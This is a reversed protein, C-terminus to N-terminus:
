DGDVCYEEADLGVVVGAANGVVVGRVHVEDDHDGDTHAVEVSENVGVHVHTNHMVPQIINDRYLHVKQKRSHPFPDDQPLFQKIPILSM